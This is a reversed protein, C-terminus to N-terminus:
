IALVVSSSLNSKTMRNISKSQTTAGALPDETSVQNLNKIDGAKYTMTYVPEGTESEIGVLSIQSADGVKLTWYVDTSFVEYTATREQNLYGQYRISKVENGDKYLVYSPYDGGVATIEGEEYGPMGYIKCYSCWQLLSGDSDKELTGYEEGSYIFLAPYVAGGEEFQVKSSMAFAPYNESIASLGYIQMMDSYGPVGAIELEFEINEEGARNLLYENTEGNEDTVEEIYWELTETTMASWTGVWSKADETLQAVATKANCKAIYEQNNENKVWSVLTYDTDGLLYIYYTAFGQDNVEAIDEASLLTEDNSALREYLDLNNDGSIASTVFLGTRMEKIGTGKMSVELADWPNVVLQTLDISESLPTLTQEFWNAEKLGEITVVEANSFKSSVKGANARVKVTHEGISVADFTYSTEETSFTAESDFVISYSTAGKVAGWKVKFGTATKNSISIKPADLKSPTADVNDGGCSAFAFLAAVAAMM